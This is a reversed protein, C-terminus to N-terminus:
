DWTASNAFSHHAPFPTQGAVGSPHPCAHGTLFPHGQGWIRAVDRELARREIVSLAKLAAARDGRARRLVKVWLKMVSHVSWPLAAQAMWLRLDAPLADFRQM